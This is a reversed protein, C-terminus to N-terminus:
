LTEVTEVIFVFEDLHIRVFGRKVFAVSRKTRFKTKSVTPLCFFPMKFSVFHEPNLFSPSLNHGAPLETVIMQHLGYGNVVNHSFFKVFSRMASAWSNVREAFFPADILGFRDNNIFCVILIKIHDIIACILLCTDKYLHRCYSCNQFIRILKSKHVKSLFFTSLLSWVVQRLM